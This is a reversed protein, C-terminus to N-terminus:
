KVGHNIKLKVKLINEINDFEWYPIEILKVKKDNCYVRLDEDRKQQKNFVTIGGWLKIPRYHQQGNYEIFINEKPLFFDVLFMENSCFLDNSKVKYQVEFEQGCKLGIDELYHRIKAEGKSEKCKPCGSGRMHTEPLQMFYGHIPCKIKIPTLCGKYESASYDYKYRHTKNARKVFHTKDKTHFEVDKEIACQRCGRGYLHNGPTIFFDGHKKCTITVKESRKVYNTKSYDYRDGWIKRAKRIFDETTSRKNQGNRENQCKPCQQGYLHNGPIVEYIGHKPCIIEVKKHSNIYNVRSYDYKDGHKNRAKKIFQETTYTQNIIRQKQGCIPCGRGKLHSDPSQFFVGHIKCNIQVKEKMSRYKVYSYDYKDGHVNRCRELFQETSLREAM